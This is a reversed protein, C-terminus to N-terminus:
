FLAYPDMKYNMMFALEAEIIFRYAQKNMEQM